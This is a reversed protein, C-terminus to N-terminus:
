GRGPRESSRGGPGLSVKQAARCREELESFLAYAARWGPARRAIRAHLLERVATLTETPSKMLKEIDDLARALPETAELPASRFLVALARRSAEDPRSVLSAAHRTLAAPFRLWLEAMADDRGARSALALAADLPSEPVQRCLDLPADDPAGDVLAGLREGALEAFDDRAALAPLLTQLAEGPAGALLLPALEPSFLVGVEDRPSGADRYAQFVAEVFTGELKRTEVLYRTGARAVPDRELAAISPWALVGLSTEDAVAAARELAHPTGGTGLPGVVSRLRAVLAAFRAALEPPAAPHELARRAEDLLAPLGDPAKQAQWPRLLPHARGQAADFLESLGLGALYFAGRGLAWAGLEVPAGDSSAVSHEIRPAPLAGPREFLLRLQEDWLAEALEPSIEAGLLVGLGVARFAGEVSAAHVPSDSADPEALEDLRLASSRARAVLRTAVAPATRPSLLAEGWGAPAGDVISSLAESEAARVLWHPRLALLGDPSREMLGLTEFTRLLRFAGPPLKTVAREVDSRLLQPDAGPLAARLWDLDPGHKLEAPLALSWEESTGVVLPPADDVAFARAIAVLADFASRRAWPTSPGDPDLREAARRRVFDRAIRGLPRTELAEMGLADALGVLGLVDGVSRAAGDAFVGSSLWRAMRKEDFGTNAALRARCWALLEDLVDAIKPSHVVRVDSLAGSPEWPEPLAVCTGPELADLEFGEPSGLELYLPRARPISAAAFRPASVFEALGRAELFRGVLSRGGGSPAVWVLRGYAGPRLVETPVGPFPQEEVLDLGRAYPLADWAIFRKPEASKKPALSLRVVDRTSGLARALGLQVEPRGALWGLNEERDLKGFIAALSRPGM